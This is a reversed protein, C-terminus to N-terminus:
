KCFHCVVNKTWLFNGSNSYSSLKVVELLHHFELYKSRDKQNRGSITEKQVMRSLIKGYKEGRPGNDLKVKADKASTPKVLATKVVVLVLFVVVAAIVYLLIKM